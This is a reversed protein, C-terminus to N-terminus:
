MSTLEQIDGVWQAGVKMQGCVRVRACVCVVLYPMSTTDSETVFRQLFGIAIHEPPRMETEDEDVYIAQLVDDVTVEGTNMFLPAFLLPYSQISQLLGGSRLGTAIQDLFPAVKYLGEYTMVDQAVSDKTSM